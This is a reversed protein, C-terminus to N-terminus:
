NTYRNPRLRSYYSRKQMIIEVPTLQIYSRRASTVLEQVTRERYLSPRARAAEVVRLLEEQADQPFKM